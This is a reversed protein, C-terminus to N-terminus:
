SAKEESRVLKLGETGYEFTGRQFRVILPYRDGPYHGGSTRNYGVITGVEAMNWLTVGAGEVYGQQMVSLIAKDVTATSPRKAQMEKFLNYTREDLGSELFSRATTPDIPLQNSM